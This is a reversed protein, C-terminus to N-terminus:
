TYQVCINEACDLRNSDNLQPSTQKTIKIYNIVGGYNTSKIGNVIFWSVIKRGLYILQKKSQAPSKIILTHKWFCREAFM